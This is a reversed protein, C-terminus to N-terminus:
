KIYVIKKVTNQGQKDILRVVYVGENLTTLALQTANNKSVVLKGTIDFLQIQSASAVEIIGNQLSFSPILQNNDIGSIGGNPLIAESLTGNENVSAVTYTAVDLTLSPDIFTTQTTSGMYKGYRYVIYGKAGSVTSWTLTKGNVTFVTPASLSTVMPVPNWEVFSKRLFFKLSYFNAAQTETLQSSWTARQSVDVLNGNSDVNEFEAFVSSLHNNSDWTSWGIPKIHSGLNCTVFVSSANPQWPRGLYVSNDSVNSAATIDCNRFLLGHIFNGTTLPTILKSDAPATIYNGGKISNITCSDFVCTADGYIFDTNGEVFCKFNYQRNKHAYYTDQNGVFRCNKFVQRDGITRLAVAQGVPGASNRVTINEMYLDAGEALLTYSNAGSLGDKGQYDNWDIIVSEANEGILSVNTQTSKVWVKETYTGSKIFILTRNSSNSPVKDLAAQISTYDGNGTADVVMDFVQASLSATGMLFVFLLNFVLKFVKSIGM